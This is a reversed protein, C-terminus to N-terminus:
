ANLRALQQALPQLGQERSVDTTELPLRIQELDPFTQTIAELHQAENSRRRAAFSGDAEEPLVRNVILTDVRVGVEGLTKVMRRTEELSLRDPNLVPIFRTRNQDLLCDRMSAYRDRRRALISAARDEPPDQQGRAALSTDMSEKRRALLGETWSRMAEPLQLLQLTHGTPATDFILHDYRQREELTLRVLEDLLAAEEAGPSSAALDAQRVAAERVEPSALDRLNRRVESMYRDLAQEADLELADLNELLSRPEAALKQLWLDGLSHAPDTSIVLVRQGSEALQLAFASACTTKGVGGKGGFFSLRAGPGSDVPQARRGFLKGLLM